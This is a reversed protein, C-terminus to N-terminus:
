KSTEKDQEDQNLGKAASITLYGNELAVKVEDKQFGPLDMELEYDTDSEKIDTKMLNKGRRGYLKKELRKMDRADWFPFDFLDDFDDFFDKGFVSPTLM